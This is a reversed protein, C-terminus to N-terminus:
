YPRVVAQLVGVDLRNPVQDLLSFRLHKLRFVKALFRQMFYLFDKGLKGGADSLSKAGSKGKIYKYADAESLEKTGVVLLDGAIIVKVSGDPASIVTADSVDKGDVKVPVPKMPPGGAEGAKAVLKDVLAQLKKGDKFQIGVALNLANAAAMPNQAAGM